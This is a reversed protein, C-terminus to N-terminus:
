ATQCCSRMLTLMGVVEGGKRDREGEKRDGEVGCLSGKFGALPDPSAESYSGRCCQKPRLGVATAHQQMTCTHECFANNAANRTRHNANYHTTFFSLWDM